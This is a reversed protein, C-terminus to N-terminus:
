HYGLQQFGIDGNHAPASKAFSKQLQEVALIKLILM